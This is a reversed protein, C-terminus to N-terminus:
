YNRAHCGQRQHRHSGAHSVRICAFPFYRTGGDASTAAEQIFDIIAGEHNSQFFALECGLERGRERLMNEISALTDTGYHQVERSGLMNLNPGNIVLIKM